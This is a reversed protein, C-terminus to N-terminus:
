DKVDARGKRLAAEIMLRHRKLTAVRAKLLRANSEKAKAKEEKTAGDKSWALKIQGAEAEKELKLFESHARNLTPTLSPGVASCGLGLFSSTAAFLILAPLKPPKKVKPAEEGESSVDDDRAKLGGFLAAAATVVVGLAQLFTTADFQAGKWMAAFGAIVVGIAGLIGALSTKTSKKPNM